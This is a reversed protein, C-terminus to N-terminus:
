GLGAIQVEYVVAAKPLEVEAIRTVRVKKIREETL